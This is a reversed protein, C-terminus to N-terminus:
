GQGAAPSKKATKRAATKKAAPKAAEVELTSRRTRAKKVAAPANSRAAKKPSQPESLSKIAREFVDDADMRRLEESILETFGRRKLAVLREPQGPVAYSALLGDPRTIAIDGAATTLRVATIGPGDSVKRFVEVHLRSHLWAALLDASPNSREAEVVVSTIKAPYQDLAAALLARWPTLRTWSLDTDGPYYDLVRARLAALPRSSAAADTLRRMALLGLEDNRRDAPVKGPWWIVVPSDPLLLPRIVSAPHAAVPGRMRIVIVEGPTGEGIHVEANLSATRGSASVVLLIRSPHERGAEMSAELAMDFESEDCVIILTLVMGQAPSGSTRRAKLLASSIQASTTDPLSIIM